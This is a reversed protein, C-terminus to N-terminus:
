GKFSNRFHYIIIYTFAVDLFSKEISSYCPIVSTFPIFILKLYNDYYGVALRAM